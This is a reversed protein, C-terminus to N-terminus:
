RTGQNETIKVTFTVDAIGSPLPLGRQVDHNLVIPSLTLTGTNAGLRYHFVFGSEADGSQSLVTAGYFALQSDVDNKLALMLLERDAMRIAFRSQIERNNVTGNPGGDSEGWGYGDETSRFSDVVQKPTYNKLFVSAQDPPRTNLQLHLTPLGIAAIFFGNLLVSLSILMKWRLKV